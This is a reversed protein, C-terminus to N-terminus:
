GIMWAGMNPTVVGSITAAVEFASQKPEKAKASKSEFCHESNILVVFCSV